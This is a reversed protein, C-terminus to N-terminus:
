RKHLDYKPNKSKMEEFEEQCREKCKECVQQPLREAMKCCLPCMSTRLNRITTPM